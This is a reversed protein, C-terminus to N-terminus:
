ESDEIMCDEDDHTIGSRELKYNEVDSLYLQHLFDMREFKDMHIYEIKKKSDNLFKNEFNTIFLNLCGLIEETYDHDEHIQTVRQKGNHQEVLKTVPIGLMLMYLHIQTKEYDRLSNFFTKTRNKVEVIYSKSFENPDVYLGDVKGCIYWDFRSNKSVNRLFYKNFKQSTDLKVGFRKEFLSIADDEKMTGHNTNIVTDVEDKLVRLKEEPIDLTDLVRYLETKKQNTSVDSSKITELVESGVFKEVREKKNLKFSDLKDEIQNLGEKLVRQKADIQKVKVSFQRQTIRKEKLDDELLAKQSQTQVIELVRNAKSNEIDALASKYGDEDCKKWLREFPTVYDWKNQGIFSAIDSAFLWVRKKPVFDM